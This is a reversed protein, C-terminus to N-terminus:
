KAQSLQSFRITKGSFVDYLQALTLDKALANKPHVIVAVADLCVNFSRVGDVDISASSLGIVNGKRDEEVAKRGVSSGELQIDFVDTAKVDYGDAYGKAAANILKEVSTSGRVVIKDGNPFNDLREYASVPIPPRNEGARKQEDALFICDAKQAHTQMEDSCLYRMFDQTRPTLSVKESTLIVYPRQIPYAGSLVTEESPLVGDVSVTKVDKSVSAYSVYGIANEDKAVTSTVFSSKTLELATLSTKYIKKGDVKMELFNGKGDCVTKDFAERTGSGKERAIVTIYKEGKYICSPFSIICFAFIGTLLASLTKRM